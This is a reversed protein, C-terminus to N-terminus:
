QGMAAMLAALQPDTLHFLERNGAGTVKQDKIQRHIAKEIAVAQDMSQVKMLQLTVAPVPLVNQEADRRDPNNTIGVKLWRTGDALTWQKLYVFGCTQSRADNIAAAISAALANDAGAVQPRTAQALRASKEAKLKAKIIHTRHQKLELEVVELRAKYKKFFPFESSMHAMRKLLQNIIAIAEETEALTLKSAKLRCAQNCRSTTAAQCNGTTWGLLNPAAIPEYAKHGWPDPLADTM